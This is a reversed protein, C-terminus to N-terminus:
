KICENYLKLELFDVTKNTKLQEKYLQLKEMGVREITKAISEKLLNYDSETVKM